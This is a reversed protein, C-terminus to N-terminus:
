ETSLASFASVGWVTVTLISVRGGCKAQFLTEGPMMRRTSGTAHLNVM